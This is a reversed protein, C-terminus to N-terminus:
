NARQRSFPTAAQRLQGSSLRTAGVKDPLTERLKSSDSRTVSLGPAVRESTRRAAVTNLRGATRRRHRRVTPKAHSTIWMPADQEITSLGRVHGTFPDASSVEKVLGPGDGEADIVM